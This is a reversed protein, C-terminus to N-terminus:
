SHPPFNLWRDHPLTHHEVRGDGRADDRILLKDGEWLGGRLAVHFDDRAHQGLLGSTPCCQAPPIEESRRAAHGSRQQGHIRDESFEEVDRLHFEHLSRGELLSLTLGVEDEVDLCMVDASSIIGGVRFGLALAPHRLMRQEPQASSCALCAEVRGQLTVPPRHCVQGPVIEDLLHEQVAVRGESEDTRWGTRVRLLRNDWRTLHHMNTVLDIAHGARLSQQCM